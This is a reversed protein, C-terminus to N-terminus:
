WKGVPCVANELKVKLPMVCGCKKCQHTLKLFHECSNCISLRAQAQEGDARPAQANFLDWPRVPKEKGM